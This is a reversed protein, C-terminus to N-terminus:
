IYNSPSVHMCVCVVVVVVVVLIVIHSVNRDRYKRLLIRTLPM